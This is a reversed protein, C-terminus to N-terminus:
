AIIYLTTWSSRCARHTGARRRTAPSPVRGRLMSGLIVEADVVCREKEVRVWPV